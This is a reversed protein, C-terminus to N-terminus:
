LRQLDVLATSGLARLGPTGSAGRRVLEDMARALENEVLLARLDGHGQSELGSFLQRYADLCRPWENATYAEQTSGILNRLAYIVADRRTQLESHPSQLLYRGGAYGTNALAEGMMVLLVASVEDLSQALNRYEENVVPTLAGVLRALRAYDGLQRRIAFM